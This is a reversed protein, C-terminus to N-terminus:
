VNGNRKGGVGNERPSRLGETIRQVIRGDDGVRGIEWGNNAKDYYGEPSLRTLVGFAELVREYTERALGAEGPCFIRVDDSVLTKSGRNLQITIEYGKM